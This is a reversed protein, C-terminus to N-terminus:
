ETKQLVADSQLLITNRQVFDLHELTLVFDPVIVDDNQILEESRLQFKLMTRICEDGQTLQM